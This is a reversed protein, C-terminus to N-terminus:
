GVPRYLDIASNAANRTRSVDIKARTCDMRSRFPPAAFCIDSRVLYGGWRLSMRNRSPGEAEIEGGSPFSPGPTSHLMGISRRPVRNMPHIM